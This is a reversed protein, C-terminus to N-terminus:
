ESKAELLKLCPSFCQVIDPNYFFKGPLILNPPQYIELPSALKIGYIPDRCGQLKEVISVDQFDSSFVNEFVWLILFYSGM